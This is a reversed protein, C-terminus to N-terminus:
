PDSKMLRQVLLLLECNTGVRLMHQASDNGLPADFSM